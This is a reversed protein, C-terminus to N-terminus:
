SGDDSYNVVTQEDSIMIEKVIEDLALAEISKGVERVNKLAPLTDLDINDSEDHFKWKRGFIRNGVTVIAAEPQRNSMHYQSKLKDITEYVKPRVKRASERIHQYQQPFNDTKDPSHSCLLKRRRKALDDFGDSDNWQMETDSDMQDNGEFESESSLQITSETKIKQKDAKERMRELSQLDYRRREMTKEWKQDFFHESYMVRQNRQDTLFAWENRMMNVGYANELRKRSDQDECFLDFLKDRNENFQRVKEYYSENRRSKRTQILNTFEMYLKLINTQIHRTRITYINCYIWHEQLLESLILAAEQKSRQKKGARNPRMLYMMNEIVRKRTPLVGNPCDPAEIYTETGLLKQASSRTPLKSSSTPTTRKDFSHTSKGVAAIPMRSTASSTSQESAM